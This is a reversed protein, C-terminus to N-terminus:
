GLFLARLDATALDQKPVFAVAACVQLLQEPVHDLDASTLVIRAGPCAASLSGAVAFGDSGPLNIDLLIGGPCKGAVAALAQEGDTAEDLLDFGRATLLDAAVARFRPSDDVILIRTAVDRMKKPSRGGPLRTFGVIAPRPCTRNPNVRHRRRSMRLGPSFAAENAQRRTGPLSAM